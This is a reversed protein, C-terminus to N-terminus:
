QLSKLLGQALQEVEANTLRATPHMLLYKGPPMTRERIVRAVKEPRVLGTKWDSFSFEARAEEVDRAIMWAPPAVNSYWPWFVESSQCDFCARKALERTAPSDWKPEAVIPPNTHDKGYPVLQILGFLVLGAIVVILITKKLM